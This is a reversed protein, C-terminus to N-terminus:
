QTRTHNEGVFAQLADDARGERSLLTVVDDSEIVTSGHPTLVEDDREIAIVLADSELVGDDVAAALSQGVIPADSRVTVEVVETDGALSIVDTPGRTPARDDPGFPAYADFTENRVLDEDEIEIGLTSLGRAIRQLDTTDEGVALVHLNRRGTLLERVNVVGPIARAERALAEREAVPVTCMFLNTLRGEVREFDITATYGTIIGHSELQSIRNRITGASVNVQEAITPASTKRADNMLAYIIRRDIEDLRYDVETTESM